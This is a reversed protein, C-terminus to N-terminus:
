VKFRSVLTNLKEAQLSLDDVTRTTERITAAMQETAGANGEAIGALSGMAGAARSSDERQTQSQAGVAQMRGGSDLIAQQISKLAKGAAHVTATGDDIGKGSTQILHTIEKAALASREALKRVEEAVVAFGKGQEGAKAAEIAANLSLLNTQNAIETIVSLINSIQKANADIAAMGAVSADVASGGEAAAKQAQESGRLADAVNQSIGQASEAITALDLTTQAVSAKQQEASRAIADAALSMQNMGAAMELTGSAISSAIAVTERVIAQINGVFQNFHNSLTAIEDEGRVELRTTLDGGGSSIDKMRDQFHELPRILAGAAFRAGLFGLALVAAAVLALVALSQVIRAHMRNQNLGLVLIAKKAGADVPIAFGSLGMATFSRVEGLKEPLRASLSQVFASAELGQNGADKKQSLVRISGSAPDQVLIAALSLDPDSGLLVQFQQDLLSADEFQVAAKASEASLAALAGGKSAMDKRGAQTLMWSSTALLALTVLLTQFFNSLTLKKRISFTNWSLM